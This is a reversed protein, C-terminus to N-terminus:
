KRGAWEDDFRALYEEMFRHRGQAMKRATETNMLDRLKLLKEHFHNIGTSRSERYQAETMAARPAAEPDHIPRAHAGGYAFTRAIGIAGMADLRDADQVVRGELTRMPPRNGGRFSMTSIIELVNDYAPRALAQRDLWARVRALGAEESGAVKEDAVDHLLAALVCVFEDAGEARAVTQATAKVREAHWWDHGSHDDELSDRAFDRAAQIIPNRGADVTQDM